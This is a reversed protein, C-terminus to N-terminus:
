FRWSLKAYVGREVEFSSFEQHQKELLNQGTVSIEVNDTIRWALRADLTTYHGVDNESQQGVYRMWLDVDLRPTINLSAQLSFQHGPYSQEYFDSVAYESQNKEADEAQIKARLYSYLARLRLEQFPQWDATIEIGYVEGEMSNQYIYPIINHSINPLKMQRLSPMESLYPDANDSIILKDYENFFIAADLWLNDAPKVRCGIEYAMLIEADLSENGFLITTTPATNDLKQSLTPYVDKILDGYGPSAIGTMWKIGREMRSPTRVARSVSGWLTYNEEPTWLFRVTPQIEFGTADNHEIKSGLTLRLHEPILQFDDQIFISYLRSDLKHPIMDIQYKDSYGEKLFFEDLILRYGLGWVIEHQSFLSFRHRFDLDFTDICSRTAAYDKGMYDYYLQLLMDSSDSFARHWRGLIHGGRDNATDATWIVYPEALSLNYIETDYISEFVEGEITLFDRGLETEPERDIRFGIRWSEWNDEIEEKEWPDDGTDFRDRNFYKSWIRYYIDEGIIDGYRVSGGTEETGGMMTLQGGLTEKASKTIINIIGNVANAGWVAAGPGRIVEIQEIDELVTDQLDWHVGSFVPSYVSRGDILVLLNNSFEENLGRITIAWETPSKRAVQVGPALRLAEPISTVGSRRIDEQTIVFVAAPVESMRETKKSASVIEVNKLEELSLATFDIEDSDDSQACCDSIALIFIGISFMFILPTLYRFNFSLPM